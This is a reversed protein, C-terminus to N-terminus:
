NEKSWIEFYGTMAVFLISRKLAANARLMPPVLIRGNGDVTVDVARRFLAISDRWHHVQLWATFGLAALALVAATGAGAAALRRRPVRAAVDAIGWSFAIALGVQPLYTYRDAHSQAGVQVFGIVPVLTGLYWLWGVLFYPHTRAGLVAGVSVAILM